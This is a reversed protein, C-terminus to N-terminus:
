GNKKSRKLKDIDWGNSRLFAVAGKQLPTIIKKDLDLRIKVAKADKNVIYISEKKM